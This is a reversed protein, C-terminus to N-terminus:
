GRREARVFGTESLLTRLPRFRSKSAPHSAEDAEEAALAVSWMPVTGIDKLHRNRLSKWALDPEGAIDDHVDDSCVVTGPFAVNVLRSAKNVVPGFFDGDRAIVQGSALGVRVQSLLEDDAYAGALALAIRVGALPRDAVFMVEDGITKIVRGGNGAVTDYALEEFRGVVRALADESLQQSLATYGVLDAFGVTLVATAPGEGMHELTMGRRAAAQLHRRWTYEILTATTDLVSGREVLVAEAYALRDEDSPRLGPQVSVLADAVRAMASGVVRAFQVSADTDAMGRDILKKLTTIAALDADNFVADTPGASPFGLARWLRDGLEAPIGSKEAAEVLTYHRRGPLVMTEVALLEIRGEELAAEIEEPSVGRRELAKRVRAVSPRRRRPADSM